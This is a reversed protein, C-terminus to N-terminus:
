PSLRAQRSIHCMMKGSTRFSIRFLVITLMCIGSLATIENSNLRAFYKGGKGDIAWDVLLGPYVMPFGFTNDFALGAGVKLNPTISRVFIVSRVEYLFPIDAISPRVTITWSVGNGIARSRFCTSNSRIM